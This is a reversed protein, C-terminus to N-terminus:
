KERNIRLNWARYDGTSMEFHFSFVCGSSPRQWSLSLIQKTLRVNSARVRRGEWTNNERWTVGRTMKEEEHREAYAHVDRSIILRTLQWTDDKNASETVWLLSLFSGPTPRENGRAFSTDNEGDIIWIRKLKVLYLHGRPAASAPVTLWRQWVFMSLSKKGKQIIKKFKIKLWDANQSDLYM